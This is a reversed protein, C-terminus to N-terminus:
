KSREARAVVWVQVTECGAKKLVRACENVTSGSTMVDDVLAVHRPPKGRVRFAGKLNRRREALSLGPQPRTRRTRQLLGADVPLDIDSLRVQRGIDKALSASQNFGRWWERWPHLPVPVLCDPKELSGQRLGQEVADAMLVGLAQGANGRRNFKFTTVLRTLPQIYLYPAFVGDFVPLRQQCRGCLGHSQALPEACRACCDGLEVLDGRCGACIDLRQEGRLGCLQCVPPFLGQWLPWLRRGLWGQYERGMM